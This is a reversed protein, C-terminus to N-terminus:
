LFTVTGVFFHTSAFRLFRQIISSCLAKAGSSNEL